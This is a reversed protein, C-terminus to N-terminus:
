SRNLPVGETLLSKTLIKVVFSHYVEDKKNFYIRIYFIYTDCGVWVFNLRKKVFHCFSVLANKFRLKCDWFYQMYKLGCSSEFSFFIHSLCRFNYSGVNELFRFSYSTKSYPEYIGRCAARSVHTYMFKTVCVLNYTFIDM